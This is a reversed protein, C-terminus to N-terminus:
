ALSGAYGPPRWAVQRIGHQIARMPTAGTARLLGRLIAFHPIVVWKLMMLM